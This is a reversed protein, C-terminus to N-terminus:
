ANAQPAPVNVPRDYADPKSRVDVHGHIRAQHGDEFMYYPFPRAPESAADLRAILAPELTFELAALSDRL